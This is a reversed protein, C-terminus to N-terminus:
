TKYLEDLLLFCILYMYQKERPDNSAFSLITKDHLQSPFFLDVFMYERSCFQSM